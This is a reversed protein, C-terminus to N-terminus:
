NRDGASLFAHRRVSPRRSACAGKGGRRRGPSGPPPDGRVPARVGPSEQFNHKRRRERLKTLPVLSM